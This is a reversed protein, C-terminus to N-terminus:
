SNRCTRSRREDGRGIIIQSGAAEKSNATQAIGFRSRLEDGGEDRCTAESDAAKSSSSCLEACAHPSAREGPSATPACWGICRYRSPSRVPGRRLAWRGIRAPMGSAAPSIPRRQPKRMPSTPWRTGCRSNFRSLPLSFSTRKGALYEQVQTAAKNTLESPACVGALPAKGLAICTIARGNAAVTIPGAPTFYSYYTPRDGDM